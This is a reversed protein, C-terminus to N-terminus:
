DIMYMSNTTLYKSVLSYTQKILSKVCDSIIENFNRGSVESLIVSCMGGSSDLLRCLKDVKEHADFYVHIKHSKQLYETIIPMVNSSMYTRNMRRVSCYMGDGWIKM